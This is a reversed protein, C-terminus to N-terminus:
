KSIVIQSHHIYGQSGCENTKFWPEGKSDEEPNENITITHGPESITCLIDGDPTKRINSPPDPIVAKLTKVTEITFINNSDQKEELAVTSLTTAGTTATPSAEPEQTEPPIPANAQQTSTITQAGLSPLTDVPERSDQEPKNDSTDWFRVTKDDSGSALMRTDSPNFALTWVSDTHGELTKILEGTDVNWLRVTKDESASALINEDPSYALANVTSDHGELTKLAEGTTTDWLRISHDSSGSAIINNNPIYALSTIAATHGELTKLLEGTNSDWLRITQDESGSIITKGDASFSVARVWDNHGSLTKLISGNQVDWLRVTKDESASALVNGDPNYAVALVPGTHGQLTHLSEGSAADWLRITSDGSGSAIVEGTPNYSLTLVPSDHGKLTQITEGSASDKLYISKDKWSGSAIMKGNHSYTLTSIESDQVQLTKLQQLFPQSNEEVQFKQISNHKDYHKKVECDQEKELSRYACQRELFRVVQDLKTEGDQPLSLLSSFEHNEASFSLYHGDEQPLLASSIPPSSKLEIEDLELQWLFSLVTSVTNPNFDLLLSLAATDSEWLRITTDDSGSAIVKGDPSYSIALVSGTHGELIQLLEGNTADWLRITKDDSGSALINGDPSYALTHIGGEHGQMTTLIKDNVVDWLYIRGDSGGGALNKGDSSYAVSTINKVKETSDEQLKLIKIPLDNNIDWVLINNGDSGSAIFKGDPSYALAHFVVDGQGLTRMVEGSVIDWLQIIGSSTSSSAIVRGDPSYALSSIPKKDGQLIKLLMGSSANWLHIAHDNAGSAIFKGDPSYALANIVGKHGQLINLAKGNNASWLRVTNDGSGYNFSGSGSAIMTGSPSYSIANVPDKHGQLVNLARSTTADWLRLTSDWSGSAVVKGDRSYSVSLISNKHGELTELLEGNTTDWLRITKDRGGSVIVKGDPSYDLSWIAETHGELSKLLEGTTIDWLRIVKDDGASAVVVSDPSYAVSFVSGEGQFTNLIEGSLANWIQITGDDSGSVITKSDPSYAVTTVNGDKLTKSSVGSMVDWVQLASGNSGGSVIMEGNPSYALTTVEGEQSQLIKESSGTNINWVRITKDNSGSAINEGDPSFALTNIYSKHGQLIRLLSGTKADWLRILNDRSGSAILRGDPSYDLVTVYSAYQQLSVDNKADWLRIVRDESGSAITKGDPSYAVASVKGAHAYLVKLFEGNNSWLRVTRDDSGTIINKGDPSFALSRVEGEHGLLTKLEQGNNVNWLIITGDESGSAIVNGDPSYVIAHVEREHGKLSNIVEGSSADWIQIGGHDLGIAIFKGDPSYSLSSIFGIDTKKFASLGEGTSSDWRQVENYGSSILFKGDPSYSLSEVETKSQLTKLLKGTELNWLKIQSDDGGSAMVGGHPMYALSKIMGNHDRLINLPKGNATSWLQITHDSLGGAIVDGAPSYALATVQSNLTLTPTKFREPSLQQDSFKSLHTSVTAVKLAERNPPVPRKQAELAYLWAKQLSTINKYKKWNELESLVKEEFAKALNYNTELTQEETLRRQEVAIQRQEDALQRQKEAQLYLLATAIFALVLVMIVSWVVIRGNRRRKRSKHVIATELSDQQWDRTGGQGQEVLKLDYTDLATGKPKNNVIEWDAKRSDLVRQARQGPLDSTDYRAKVVGALTDHALRLQQKNNLPDVLLYRDTFTKALVERYPIHAYRSNYETVPLTKATGQPTTHAHLVDLLLGSDHARKGWANPLEGIERLQQDLHESLLLGQAKQQEYLEQTWLRQEPPLEAVRQWLKSLMIQLPPAINSEKDELLDDAIQEALRGTPPNQLQLGYKEVLLPMRAPQEIIEIIDTKGLPKLLYDQSVLRYQRCADHLEGFWETRLSLIIRANPWTDPQDPPYLAQLTKLLLNLADPLNDQQEEKSIAAATEDEKTETRFFIEELQDVIWISPLASRSYLRTRIDALTDSGFVRPLLNQLTIREDYRCVEAVPQQRAQLRPILGAMLFSSKGVGTGGHLLLLPVNPADLRELVDLTPQCRGFFIEADDATYYYLNKFPQDPLAQVAKAPLVPLRNCPHAAEELKWDHQNTQELFWAWQPLSQATVSEDLSRVNLTRHQEGAKTTITARAQGFAVSIPTRRKALETYFNESFERAVTDVIPFSTGITAPIGVEVFRQVQRANNCGNLFLLQLHQCARLKDVLGSAHAVGEDLKLVESNSHGAFHLLILRERNDDLHQILADVSSYELIQIDYALREAVPQLIAQLSEMEQQIEDLPQTPDNAFILLILPRSPKTELM